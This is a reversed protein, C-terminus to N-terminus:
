ILVCLSRVVLLVLLIATGILYLTFSFCIAIYHQVNQRDYDRLLFRQVADPHLSTLLADLERQIECQRAGHAEGRQETLDRIRDSVDSDIVPDLNAMVIELKRHPHARLFLEYSGAVYDDADAFRKIARPCFYQYLAIAIGYALSAGYLWRFTPPFAVSEAFFKSAGAAKAHLEFLVPVVLLVVYSINFYRVSGFSRVVNWRIVERM